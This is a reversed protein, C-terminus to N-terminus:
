KQKKRLLPISMSQGKLFSLQTEFQMSYTTILSLGMHARAAMSITIPASPTALTRDVFLSYYLEM